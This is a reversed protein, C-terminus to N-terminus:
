SITINENVRWFALYIIYDNIIM